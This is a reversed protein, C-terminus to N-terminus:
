GAELARLAREAGLTHAEAMRRRRAKATPAAWELDLLAAAGLGEAMLATVDGLERLAAWDPRGPAARLASAAALQRAVEREGEIAAEVREAPVRRGRLTVPVYPWRRAWEHAPANPERLWGDLCAGDSMNIWRTDLATRAGAFNALWKIQDAWTLQTQVPGDVGPVEIVDQEIPPAPQGSAVHRAADAEDGTITVHGGAFAARSAGRPADPHYVQGDPGYALDVGVLVIERSGWHYALAVAATLAATGSYLMSVALHAGMAFHRPYGPLYWHARDGAADWLAPHCGTDLVVHRARSERIQESCDISERAVLVDPVVGSAEAARASANVVIVAGRESCNPLHRVSGALSPGAGVVYAPLGRLPESTLTACPLDAMRHMARLAYTYVQESKHKIWLRDPESM